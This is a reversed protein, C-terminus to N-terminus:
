QRSTYCSTFSTYIGLCFLLSFSLTHIHVINWGSQSSVKYYRNKKLFPECRLYVWNLHTYTIANTHDINNLGYYQAVTSASNGWDQTKKFTSYTFPHKPIYLTFSNHRCQM